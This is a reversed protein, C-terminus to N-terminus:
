IAVCDRPLNKSVTAGGMVMLDLGPFGVRLGMTSGGPKGDPLGGGGGISRSGTIDVVCGCM